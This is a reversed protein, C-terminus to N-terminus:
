VPRSSRKRRFWNIRLFNGRRSCLRLKTSEYIKSCIKCIGRKMVQSAWIRILLQRKRSTIDWCVWPSALLTRLAILMIKVRKRRRNRSNRFRNSRRGRHSRGNTSSIQFRTRQSPWHFTISTLRCKGSISWLVPIKKIKQM